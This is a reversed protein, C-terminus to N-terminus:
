IAISAWDTFSEETFAAFASTSAWATSAVAALAVESLADSGCPGM